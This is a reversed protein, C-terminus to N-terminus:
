AIEASRPLHISFSKQTSIVATTTSVIVFRHMTNKERAPEPLHFESRRAFVGPRIRKTPLTLRSMVSISNQKTFTRLPFPGM